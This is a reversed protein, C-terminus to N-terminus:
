DESDNIVEIGMGAIWAGFIFIFKALQLRIRWWQLGKIKVEVTILKAIDLTKVSFHAM